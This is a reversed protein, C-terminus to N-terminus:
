EHLAKENKRVTAHHEETHVYQLRKLWDGTSIHTPLKQIAATSVMRHGTSQNTELIKYNCIISCQIIKHM